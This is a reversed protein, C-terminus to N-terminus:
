VMSVVGRAAQKLVDDALRPRTAPSYLTAGLAAPSPSAPAPARPSCPVPPASSPASPSSTSTPM